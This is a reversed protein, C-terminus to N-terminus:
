ESNYSPETQSFVPFGSERLQEELVDPSHYHWRNMLINIKSLMEKEDFRRHSYEEGECDM